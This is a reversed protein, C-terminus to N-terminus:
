LTAIFASVLGSQNEARTDRKVSWWITASPANRQLFSEAIAEPTHSQSIDYVYKKSYFSEFFHKERLRVQRATGDSFRMLFLCDLETSKLDRFEALSVGDVFLKTGKDDAAEFWKPCIGSWIGEM